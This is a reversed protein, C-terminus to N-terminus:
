WYELIRLKRKDTTYAHTFGHRTFIKIVETLTEGGVQQSLEWAAGYWFLSPVGGDGFCYCRVYQNLGHAKRAETTWRATIEEYVLDIPGFIRRNVRVRAIYMQPFAAHQLMEPPSWAKLNRAEWLANPKGEPNLDFQGYLGDMEAVQASLEAMQVFRM